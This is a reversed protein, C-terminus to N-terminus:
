LPEDDVFVVKGKSNRVVGNDSHWTLPAEYPGSFQYTAANCSIEMSQNKWQLEQSMRNIAKKVIDQIIPIQEHFLKSNFRFDDINGKEDFKWEEFFLTDKIFIDRKGGKFKISRIPQTTDLVETLNKIDKNDFVAKIKQLYISRNNSIKCKPLVCAQYKNKAPFINIFDQVKSYNKVIQNVNMFNMHISNSYSLIPASANLAFRKKM